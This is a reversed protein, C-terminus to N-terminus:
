GKRPVGLCEYILVQHAPKLAGGPIPIANKKIWRHLTRVSIGYEAAIQARTKVKEVPYTESGPLNSTSM